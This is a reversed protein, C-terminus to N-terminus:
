LVKANSKKGEIVYVIKPPDRLGKLVRIAESKGTVQVVERWDNDWWEKGRGYVKKRLVPPWYKQVSWTDAPLPVTTGDRWITPVTGCTINTKHYFATVISVLRYGQEWDDPRKPEPPDISAKRNFWIM